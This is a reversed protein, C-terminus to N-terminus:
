GFGGFTSEGTSTSCPRDIDTAKGGFTSEGTYTVYLFGDTDRYQAYVEKILQSALPLTNKIFIFLAKEPPLVLRRRIIYIFQGLTITDPCLFKSKDIDPVDKANLSKEVIIPIRGPYKTMIEHAERIRTVISKSEKYSPQM